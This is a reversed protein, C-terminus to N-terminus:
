GNSNDGLRIISEEKQIRQKLVVCYAELAKHMNELLIFEEDSLNVIDDSDLFEELKKTRVSFDLLNDTLM